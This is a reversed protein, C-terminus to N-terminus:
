MTYHSHVRGLPAFVNLYSPVRGNLSNNVMKLCHLDRREALQKWNLQNLLDVIRTRIDARLISRAARSQMIQLEDSYCKKINGWVVDVYDFLPKVLLKYLLNLSAKNLYRQNCHLLSIRGNVKNCFKVIHVSLTLAPDFWVGLYKFSPWFFFQQTARRSRGYIELNLM